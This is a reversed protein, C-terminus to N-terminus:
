EGGNNDWFRETENEPNVIELTTQHGNEKPTLHEMTEYLFHDDIFRIDGGDDSSNMFGNTEVHNRLKEVAEAETNAEVVFRGRTWVEVKGDLYLAYQNM